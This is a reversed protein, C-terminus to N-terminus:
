WLLTYQLAVGNTANGHLVLSQGEASHKVQMQLGPTDVILYYEKDNVLFSGDPLPEIVSGTALTYDFESTGDLHISRRIGRRSPSAKEPRDDEGTVPVILDTLRVNGETYIFTPLGRKDLDYERFTPGKDDAVAIRLPSVDPFLIRPGLPVGIQGNGRRHWMPTADLFGGDWTQFLNGNELDITYHIGEPTGVSLCHTKKEGGSTMFTRQIVARNRDTTILIPEVPPEYFISGSAHLAQTHMRRGEVYLALGHRYQIPKNYILTFPVPMGNSRYLGRVEEEFNNAGDHRIVTDRGVVLIGGGGTQLKFLYTGAGPFEMRGKYELLFVDPQTALHRSISDVARESVRELKPAHKMFEGPTKYERLIMEKLIVAQQEFIKYRINRFAVRGHNGQIMLPGLPKEDKFAASRTPGSVSVSDQVLVGNLYVKEFLANAVKKGNEDFRPAKFIIKMTQWLGPAKCASALPASGEYGKNTVTDTRQYIGGMHGYKTEKMAWSDFLQVEYRGQLYLGSNSNRPMLVELELEIDGHEFRTFLHSRNKEDSLNVLIGRGPTATLANDKQLDAFVNGAIQWNSGKGTFASMDRLSLADGPLTTPVVSRQAIGNTGYCIYCLVALRTILNLKGNEM